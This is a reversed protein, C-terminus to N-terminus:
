VGQVLIRTTDGDSASTAKVKIRGKYGRPWAIFPGFVGSGSASIPLAYAQGDPDTTDVWWPVIGGTFEYEGVGIVGDAVKETTIEELTAVKTAIATATNKTDDPDGEADVALTITLVGTEDDLDADLDTASEPDEPLVVKVIYGLDGADAAAITVQGGEEDGITVSSRADEDALYHELSLTVAPGTKVAILTPVLMRTLPVEIYETSNEGDWTIIKDIVTKNFGEIQRTEPMDLPRTM